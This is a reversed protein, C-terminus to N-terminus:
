YGVGFKVILKCTEKSLKKVVEGTFKFQQVAIADYESLQIPDNVEPDYVTVDIGHNELETRFTMMDKSFATDTVAVKFPM